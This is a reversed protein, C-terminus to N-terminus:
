QAVAADGPRGARGEEGGAPLNMTDKWGPMNYLPCYSDFCLKLGGITPMSLAVIRGGVAAAADAAGLQHDTREQTDASVTLVNWNLPRQARASMQSMLEIEEDSFM